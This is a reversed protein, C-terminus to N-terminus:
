FEGVEELGTNGLGRVNFRYYIQQDAGYRRRMENGIDYATNEAETSRQGTGISIICGIHRSPWLNACEDTLSRVPNSCSLAGVYAVKDANGILMPHFYTPIAM